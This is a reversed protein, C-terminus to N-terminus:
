QGLMFRLYEAEHPDLRIGNQEAEAMFQDASLGDARADKVMESARSSLGKRDLIEVLTSELDRRGGDLGAFRKVRGGIGEYGTRAAQYRKLMQDTPTGARTGAVTPPRGIGGVGAVSVSRDGASRLLQEAATEKARAAAEATTVRSDAAVRAAQVQADSAIQQKRIDVDAEIRRPVLEREMAQGHEIEKVGLAGRLKQMVSTRLSDPSYYTGTANGIETQAQHFEPSSAEPVLDDYGSAIENQRRNLYSDKGLTLNTPSKRQILARLADYQGQAM